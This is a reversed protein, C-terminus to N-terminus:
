KAGDGLDAMWINGTTELLGFVVKDVAVCPNVNIPDGAALLSRRAEHFHSVEIAPGVPRKTAPDLRQARLCRFGDRESLYYLVNGDPSWAAYREMGKGDTIPTWDTEEVPSVGPQSTDRFPAIFVQRTTADPIAHFAIWRDDPSFRGASLAYSDHRILPIRRRRGPVVLGLPQGAVQEDLLKTGDSSWSTPIFCYECVLEPEGGTAPAVEIKSTNSAPVGVGYAVKSGDRSILPNGAIGLITERGTSLNKVRASGRGSKIRLYALKNGDSSLSTRTDAEEGETLRRMPGQIVARNPDLPLSWIDFNENLSAFILRVGGGPLLTAGPARESAAGFTLREPVGAVRWTRDNLPIRWINRADGARASFLIGSEEAPGPLWVGATVWDGGNGGFLFRQERLAPFVGTKVASDRDGDLSTIWWDMEETPSPIDSDGRVGLFLIREGDPSWLPKTVSHFEPQVQRPQGGATPVIYAKGQVLGQFTIGGTWYAIFDGGPSFRPGRGERAIHRPEGGLTSVIHIGGGDQESRYAIRSADPSFAPEHEDAASTTLRLSEGGAVQQVWIDLNGEADSSTGRDSAYSVLRGDPSLAPETALGADSTLRVLEGRMRPAAQSADHRWLWASGALAVAALGVAGALPVWRWSSGQVPQQPVLQGSDAEEKLEELALKLDGMHQYRRRPDKRLCRKIVREIERPLGEVIQSPPKPEERLISALVSMKTEGEFARRGTLMEYLVSGFSFIDSRADVPMGEAQEPSMYAVTGLITGEETGSNEEVQRTNAVPSLHNDEPQVLKALGFDLVKVLGDPTIMVNGPKIDRHVISGEHAKALADAVQVGYRLTEGLPLGKRGVVQDLTKGAVYEMAIFDVDGVLNIDYITIINPHNLASAAKAEQVLRRKRDPSAMAEARLVKIAAPRDLHTDHARYVVGMGGEGLKAELRYHALMQGVGVGAAAPDKGPRARAALPETEMQKRIQRLDVLMEDVHQYRNAAEKALAKSLVRDLEIPVGSRLATLPEPDQNLISYLAAHEVEGGFPLQGAVM